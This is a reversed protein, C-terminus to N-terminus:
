KQVVITGNITPALQDHYGFTGTTTATYTYTQDNNLIESKLSVLGTDKPFPNSAVQHLNGDTNTWTVKTGRKVSLTSPVFGAKTIRVVAVRAPQHHIPNSTHLALITVLAIAAFFVAFGTLIIRFRPKKDPLTEIKDPKREM